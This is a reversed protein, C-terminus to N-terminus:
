KCNKRVSLCEYEIFGTADYFRAIFWWNSNDRGAAIIEGNNSEVIVSVAHAAENITEYGGCFCDKDWYIDFM